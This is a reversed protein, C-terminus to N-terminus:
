GYAKRCAAIVAGPQGLRTASALAEARRNNLSEGNHIGAARLGPTMRTDLKGILIGYDTVAETYSPGQSGIAKRLFDALAYCALQSDLPKAPLVPQAVQTAPFAAACTPRLTQWKGKITADFLGPMRRSVTNVKAQDFRDGAAAYLMAFHLIRAQADAPLDGKAGAAERESAATVVGCAAAQDIADAPLQPAADKACGALLLATTVTTAMMRRM